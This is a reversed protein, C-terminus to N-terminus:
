LYAGTEHARLHTYSVTWPSGPLVFSNTSVDEFNKRAPRPARAVDESNRRAPRSCLCRAQSM